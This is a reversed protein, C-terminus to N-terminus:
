HIRETYPAQRNTERESERERHPHTEGERGKDRESAQERHRERERETERDRKGQEREREKEREREREISLVNCIALSLILPRQGKQGRCMCPCWASEASGWTALSNCDGHRLAADASAM